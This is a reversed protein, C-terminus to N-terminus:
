KERFQRDKWKEFLPKLRNRQYKGTSTVPFTDGFVVVKPSKAYSLKLRCQRLIEEESLAAGEELQVYAGVEEGYYNNEFGVAMAAKIGPIANLAEDIDFPSYNIGGRIILEKIRGTIFYYHRGDAGVKYFGEDGSRFWGHTFADRNADPRRYYYKMVNYGRIVIEGRTEPPLPDGQADHIAMENASIPCGISPFGCEMMWYRYADPDLDIPLFCSYCTTESLGYGHVVRVGFREDFRRAVEVTLPGAGCSIHRFRSLDFQSLDDRRESLFALATPVVSVWSCREDALTQWFAHARFRSNLVVSGGTYLPTTLTVVIGNVHHIPLVCMARDEPGFRHWEAISAADALLNAQELVVGKPAGTTGSTYIILCETHPPLDPLVELPPYSRLMRAFGEPGAESEHEGLICTKIDPLRARLAAFRAAQRKHVFVAKAESNELIYAIRDDDEGCNIPAVTVGLLWAAFYIMVTRPDNIMLTAIRDGTKLGLSDAMMAALRRTLENFEGYTYEAARGNDDYYTLWNREPMEANRETLIAGINRYHFLRTEQREGADALTRARAILAMTEPTAHIEMDSM